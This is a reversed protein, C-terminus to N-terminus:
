NNLPSLTEGDWIFAKVAAIDDSNPITFKKNNVPYTLTDSVVKVLKGDSDYAAFAMFSTKGDNLSEDLYGANMVAYYGNEDETVISTIATEGSYRAVEFDDIFVDNEAFFFSVQNIMSISDSLAVTGYNVNDVYLTATHRDIDFVQMFEAWRGYALQPLKSIKQGSVDAGRFRINNGNFKVSAATLTEGTKYQKVEIGSSYNEMDASGNIYQRHKVVFRGGFGCNISTPTISFNNTGAPIYVYHNGMNDSIIKVNEPKSGGKNFDIINKDLKDTYADTEFDYKASTIKYDAFNDPEYVKIKVTTDPAGSAGIKVSTLTNGKEFPIVGLLTRNKFAEGYYMATVTSDSYDVALRIRGKAAVASADVTNAVKVGYLANEDTKENSDFVSIRAFETGNSMLIFPLNSPTGTFEYDLDVVTNGNFNYLSNISTDASNKAAINIKREFIKNNIVSDLESTVDGIELDDIYVNNEFKFDVKTLIDSTELIDVKSQGIGDIYLAATHENLDIVQLVEIWKGTLVEGTDLSIQPKDVGGDIAANRISTGNFGAKSIARQDGTKWHYATMYNGSYSTPIGTMYQKYRVYTKGTFGDGIQAAMVTFTENAPVSMYHNGSEDSVIKMNAGKNTSRTFDFLDTDVGNAFIGGEFDYKVKSSKYDDFNDPSFVKLKINTQPCQSAGIQVSTLGGTVDLATGATDRSFPFKALMAETKFNEGYYKVTIQKDTFDILMQMKGKDAASGCSNLYDKKGNEDFYEIKTGYLSKNGAGNIAIRGIETGNSKLIFPINIVNSLDNTEWDANSFDYEAEVVTNKTFDYGSLQKEVNSKNPIVYEDAFINEDACVGTFGLSMIMSLASILSIIKKM